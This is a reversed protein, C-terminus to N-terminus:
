VGKWFFLGILVKIWKASIKGNSRQAPFANLVGLAIVKTIDAPLIGRRRPELHSIAVDRLVGLRGM